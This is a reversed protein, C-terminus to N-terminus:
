QKVDPFEDTKKRNSINADLYFSSLKGRFPWLPIFWLSETPSTYYKSYPGLSRLPTAPSQHHLHWWYRRALQELQLSRLPWGTQALCWILAVMQNTAQALRWGSLGSCLPYGAQPFTVFVGQQLRTPGLFGLGLLGLVNIELWLSTLQALWWWLRIKPSM